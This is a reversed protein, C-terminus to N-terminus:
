DVSGVVDGVGHDAANFGSVTPLGVTSGSSVGIRLGNSDASGQLLVSTRDVNACFHLRRQQVSRMLRM